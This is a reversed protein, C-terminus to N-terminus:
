FCFLFTCLFVHRHGLDLVCLQNVLAGLPGLDATQVIGAHTGNVAVELALSARFAHGLAGSMKTMDLKGLRNVQVTHRVSMHWM